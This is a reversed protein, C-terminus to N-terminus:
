LIETGARLPSVRGGKELGQTTKGIVRTSHAVAVQDICKDRDVESLSPGTDGEGALLTLAADNSKKKKKKKKKKTPNV